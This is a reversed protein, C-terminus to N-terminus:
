WDNKDKVPKENTVSNKLDAITTKAYNETQRLYEDMAPTHSPLATDYWKEIPYYSIGKWNFETLMYKFRGDKAAVTITYQVLGGDTRTGEKDPPNSIRFRPKGTVSKGISDNERIVEGPNKYYMRFWALIKQYLEDATKGPADVVEEWTIKNTVNDRPLEPPPLPTEKKKQAEATFSVAFAFLAVFIIKQM